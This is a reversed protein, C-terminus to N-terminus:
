CKEWGECIQFIENEKLCFCKEKIKFRGWGLKTKAGIGEDELNKIAKYLWKLDQKVEEKLEDDKKLVGDFPIYVIQLIGETGSPVVEYHIPVTGARKRRNHPNIIELSIREFYTPYFIVRGKHTQFEIPLNSQSKEIKDSIKSGLKQILKSEDDENRIEDIDKKKVKMGLEFLMFELINNKFDELKKSKERLYSEIEKISESGAGFIRLYSEIIKSKESNNNLLRKFAGALAGKWSSGRVMPVKFVTEKLIPNQIIYFEDDDRSFYPGVLAFKIWVAFSYKPLKEILDKLDKINNKDAIIGSIKQIKQVPNDPNNESNKIEFIKSSSELKSNKLKNKLENLKKAKNNKFNYKCYAIYKNLTEISTLNKDIEQLAEFTKNNDM